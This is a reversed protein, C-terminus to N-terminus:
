TCSFSLPLCPLMTIKLSEAPTQTQLHFQKPVSCLTQAPVSRAAAQFPIRWGRFSSREHTSPCRRRPARLIGNASTWPHAGANRPSREPLDAPLPPLRSAPPVTKAWTCLMLEPLSLAPSDRKSNSPLCSRANRKPPPLSSEGPRTQCKGESEVRTHRPGVDFGWKM